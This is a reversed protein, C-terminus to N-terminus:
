HHINDENLLYIFLLFRNTNFFFDEQYTFTGSTTSSFGKTKMATKGRQTSLTELLVCQALYMQGRKSRLKINEEM